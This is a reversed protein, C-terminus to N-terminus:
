RDEPMQGHELFAEHCMERWELRAADWAAARAADGAAARAADGAAARAADGTAAWAADRAADWAADRAADWAADRNEGTMLFDLVIEPPEWLHAVSLAQMKAFYFLAETADCRAVIRRKRCILKDNSEIIEGDCDVLCLTSGPAYCLADMPHRSAHLGQQCLILPGNHELWEGDAPIPRGDRLRDGVFHWARIM